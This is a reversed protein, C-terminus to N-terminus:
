PRLLWVLGAISLALVGVAAAMVTLDTASWGPRKKRLAPPAAPIAAM